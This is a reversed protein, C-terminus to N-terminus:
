TSWRPSPTSSRSCTTRAAIRSAAQAVSWRQRRGRRRVHDRAVSVGARVGDHIRGARLERHELRARNEAERIRQVCFTCKEMVGKGRVTVDPNLQWNLPEPFAYQTGTARATGSGTSTACRTRATTRATARASAATTSRCTSGTPRTTRRTCRVCRSARRTAATSACCRSSGRRSTRSSRATTPNAGEFYRELRIWGDRPRAPHQRRLGHRDPLVHAGQWPAGVTPINNEAYCATVCASCGTCRALDVTMAWRRKAMGSWHDPTTCAARDNSQPDGLRGARRERGAVRLGPLFAHSADGPMEERREGHWERARRRGGRHEAARSGARERHRARDRPWAAAGLRRHHRAAHPRGDQEGAGQDCSLALAGPGIKRRDPASGAPELGSVKRAYRGYATHGRGLSSRSPTRCPHGHVRVGAGRDLRDDTEVKLTIALRSASSRARDGSSDRGVTQWVIKTVPDPLEQLWPKNAGRGDGLAPSPYIVLYFDGHSAELAAGPIPAVSKFPEARAPQGKAASRSPAAETAAAKAPAPKAAAAPAGSTVVGTTLANTFGTAAGPFRSILWTRYDPWPYKAALAPDSKALSILVDATQRTDFVPDMGPQQLSITGAVPAADGWSELAHHDPLVLDCLEATEDPYSSFSVKFPVKEM